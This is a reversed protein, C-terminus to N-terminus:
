EGGLKNNAREFWVDPRDCNMSEAGRVGVEACCQDMSTPSWDYTIQAKPDPDNPYWPVILRPDFTMVKKGAGPETVDSEDGKVIDRTMGLTVTGEDATSIYTHWSKVKGPVRM